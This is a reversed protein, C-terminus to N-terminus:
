MRGKNYRLNYNGIASPKMKFHDRLIKAADPLSKKGHTRDTCKLSRPLPFGLSLLYEKDKRDM